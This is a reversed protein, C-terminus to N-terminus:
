DAPQEFTNFIEGDDMLCNEFVIREMSLTDTEALFTHYTNEKFVCNQFLVKWSNPASIFPYTESDSHNGLIQCDQLLVDYSDYFSFMSFEKSNRFTCNRFRAVDVSSLEVLGYTCDFLESEEVWLTSAQYAEVGYSGSGYLRCNDIRVNYSDYLYIVSGTCFGPEVEHGCTLGRLMIDACGEFALVKAYPSETSIVVKEGEAAEMCFNRVNRITYEAPEDAYSIVDLKPNRVESVDLESFNYEGGKLIIKRRDQIAEELEEVTSVTVVDLYQYEDSQEMEKSGQRLYIGNYTYDSTMGYYQERYQLVNTELLTVTRRIESEDMRNKLRATPQNESTETEEELAMGNITTAEDRFHYYDAYLQDDSSYILLKSNVGDEETLYYPSRITMDGANEREGYEYGVLIWEGCLRNEKQSEEIGSEVVDETKESKQTTEAGLTQKTPDTPKKSGCASLMLALIMGLLIGTQKRIHRNKM